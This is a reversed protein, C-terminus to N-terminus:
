RATRSSNTKKLMTRITEPSITKSLGLHVLHAALLRLSWQAHGEPAPGCVTAIVFAEVRGSYKKPTGSSKKNYLAAELGDQCFRQRARLATRASIGLALAIKKDNWGAAAKQLIHAHNFVSINAQGKRLIKELQKRNAPTLEVKYLQKMELTYWSHCGKSSASSLDCGFFRAGNAFTEVKTWRTSIERSREFHCL